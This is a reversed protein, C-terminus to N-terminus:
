DVKPLRGQRYSKLAAELDKKLPGKALLVAESETTIAEEPRGSMFQIRALTDLYTALNEPEQSRAERVARVALKEAVVLDRNVLEKDTAIDWALANCFEPPTNTREARLIRAPYNTKAIILGQSYQQFIQHMGQARLVREAEEKEAKEREKETMTYRGAKKDAIGRNSSPKATTPIGGACIEDILPGTLALPHGIWAIKGRGNIVFAIPIEDHGAAKIWGTAVPSNTADLAVRFEVKAARIAGAVLSEDSQWVNQGIVVLQGEDHLKHIENLYRLMARSPGCWTAWFALLYTHGPEFEKIPEGQVWRASRLSPAPDGVKLPPQTGGLVSVGAVVWAFGILRLWTGARDFFNNM